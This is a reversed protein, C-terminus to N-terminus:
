SLTCIVLNFYNCYILPGWGGPQPRSDPWAGKLVPSCLRRTLVHVHVAGCTHAAHMCAYGTAFAAPTRVCKCALSWKQSCHAHGGSHLQACACVVMGEGRGGGSLKPGSCYIVMNSIIEENALM